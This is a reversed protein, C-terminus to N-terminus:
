PPSQWAMGFRVREIGFPAIVFANLSDEDGSLFVDGTQAMYQTSVHEPNDAELTLLVRYESPFRPGRLDVLSRPRWSGQAAIPRYVTVKMGAMM